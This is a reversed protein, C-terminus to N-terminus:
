HRQNRASLVYATKNRLACRGRRKSLPGNIKLARFCLQYPIIAGNLAFEVANNTKQAILEM